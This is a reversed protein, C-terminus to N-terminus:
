DVHGARSACIYKSWFACSSHLLLPVHWLLQIGKVSRMLAHCAVVLLLSLHTHYFVLHAKLMITLSWVSLACQHSARWIELGEELICLLTFRLCCLWNWVNLIERSNGILLARHYFLFGYLSLQIAFSHAVVRVLEVICLRRNRPCWFHRLRHFLCLLLRVEPDGISWLTLQWWFSSWMAFLWRFLLCVILVVSLSVFLLLKFTSLLDQTLLSGLSWWWIAVACLQGVICEDIVLVWPVLRSKSAM